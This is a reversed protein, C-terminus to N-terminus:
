PLAPRHGTNLHLIVLATAAIKTITQPDLTVHQLSKFAKLLANAREALARLAGQLTNYVEQKINLDTGKVPTKIGIGAGQYGKGALTPMGRCGAECLVAM